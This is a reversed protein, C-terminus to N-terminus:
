ASRRGLVEALDCAGIAIECLFWLMHSVPCPYAERCAQALDLGTVSGPARGSKAPIDGHFLMVLV